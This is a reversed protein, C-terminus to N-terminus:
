ATLAHEDASLSQTFVKFSASTCPCRGRHCSIVAIPKAGFLDITTSYLHAGRDRRLLFDITNGHQDVARYLYHQEPRNWVGM